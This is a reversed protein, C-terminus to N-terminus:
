KRRKGARSKDQKVPASMQVVEDMPPITQVPTVEATEGKPAAMATEVKPPKKKPAPDNVASQKPVEVGEGNAIRGQAKSYGFRVVDGVRFGGWEKTMKLYIDKQAM